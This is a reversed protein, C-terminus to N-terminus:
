GRLVEGGVLVNSPAGTTTVVGDQVLHPLNDGLHPPASLVRYEDRTDTARASHRAVHIEVGQVGGVAPGDREGGPDLHGVGLQVHDDDGAVAVGGRDAAVM